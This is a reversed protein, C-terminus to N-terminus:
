PNSWYKSQKSSRCAMMIQSLHAVSLSTVSFSTVHVSTVDTLHGSTVHWMVPLSTLWTVPLSMMVPLSTMKGTSKKRKVLTTTCFVFLVIVFLYCLFLWFGYISHFVVIPCKTSSSYYSSFFRSFIVDSGTGQSVDSGNVHSGTVDSRYCVKWLNHHGASGWFLRLVSWVGLM